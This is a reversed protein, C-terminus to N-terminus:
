FVKLGKPPIASSSFEHPNALPLNGPAADETAFAKVRADFARLGLKGDFSTPKLKRVILMARERSTGEQINVFRGPNLKKSASLPVPDSRRNQRPKCIDLQAEIVTVAVKDGEDDLNKVGLTFGTDRLRSSVSAGEAWLIHGSAPVSANPFESRSREGATATENPLARVKGNKARLVLTGTFDSPTAKHLTLMARLHTKGSNQVHIARGPEIKAAESLAAPATVPSPRHVDLTLEVATMNAVVPNQPAIPVSGGALTLTLVFGGVNASASAGEAFLKVGASLKAGQFVNDAGDFRIETGGSRQTFFRIETGSRRLTGTGDFRRDTKVKVQRRKPNTHPKKVLIVDKEVEIVPAAAPPTPQAGAKGGKQKSKEGLNANTVDWGRLALNCKGCFHPTYKGPEQHKFHGADAFD